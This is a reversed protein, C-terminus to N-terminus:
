KKSIFLRGDTSLTALLVKKSTLRQESTSEAAM